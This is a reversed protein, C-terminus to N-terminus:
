QNCWSLFSELKISLSVDLSTHKEDVGNMTLISMGMWLFLIILCFKGSQSIVFASFINDFSVNRFRRSIRRAM